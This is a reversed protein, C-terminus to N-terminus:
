FVLLYEKDNSYKLTMNILLGPTAPASRCDGGDSISENMSEIM